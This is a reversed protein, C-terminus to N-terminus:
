RISVDGGSGRLGCTDSSSLSAELAAPEVAALVRGAVLEDLVPGSLSQCLPEGYGTPGRSCTYAHLNKPG